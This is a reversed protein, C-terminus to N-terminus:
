RKPILSIIKKALYFGFPVGVVVLIVSLMGPDTFVGSAQAMLNAATSTPITFVPM